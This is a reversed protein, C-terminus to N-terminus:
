LAGAALLAAQTRNPVIAVDGPQTKMIMLLRKSDLVTMGNRKLVILRMEMEELGRWDLLIDDRDSTLPFAAPAKSCVLAANSNM